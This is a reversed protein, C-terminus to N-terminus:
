PQIRQQALVPTLEVRSRVQRGLSDRLLIDHFGYGDPKWAAKRGAGRQALIEGNVIWTFPRRGGEGELLLIGGTVQEIRGGDPPFHISPPAQRNALGIGRNLHRLGPALQGNSQMPMAQGSWPFAAKARPLSDFVRFLLPAATNAGYHGPNPTGDPRGVWVGVTFRASYGIAWADRFGYSTGTKYAIRSHGPSRTAMLPRAPKRASGLINAIAARASEGFLAKCPQARKREQAAIFVLPRLCGDHALGAYLRALDELTTGVGGLALALGPLSDDGGFQLRLGEHRLTETFYVPGIKELLAVAPVNLSLQLAEALSVQGYHREMFNAPAYDGFRTPVDDVYTAPHALGRAFAMAYIAPKLTSGPSRLATVADVQGQRGRDWFDANGIYARVQRSDNEVVLAAVAINPGLRRAERKAWTELSRQLDLDLTSVLRAPLRPQRALRRALHPALFPLASTEIRLPSSRARDLEARSFFPSSVAAARRLVKDRASRAAEPYRDPRLRGPAQPLAVLLAAEELSMDGPERGLYRLSAARLGELNGGFPALNLYFTLIQEKSFRAELQLARLMELVKAAMSRPRPELLRAVQMTLTSAGSVVRGARAAQWTARLIALPDVGPHQRFRRDEFAILLEIYKPDVEQIDTTLRLQGADNTFARLLREDRSRVEKSHAALRTLDPPFKRDLGWAIGLLLTACAWGILLASLIRQRRM